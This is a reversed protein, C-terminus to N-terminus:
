APQEPSWRIGINGVVPLELVASAGPRLALKYAIAKAGRIHGEVGKGRTEVPVKREWVDQLAPPMFLAVAGRHNKLAFAGWSRMSFAIGPDDAPLVLPYFRQGFDDYRPARMAAALARDLDLGLISEVLDVGLIPAPVTFDIWVDRPRDVAPAEM